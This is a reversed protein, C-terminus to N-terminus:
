HISLEGYQGYFSVVERPLIFKAYFISEGEKGEYIDYTGFLYRYKGFLTRKRNIWFDILTRNTIGPFLEYINNLSNEEYALPYYDDLVTANWIDFPLECMAILTRYEKRLIRMEWEGLVQEVYKAFVSSVTKGLTLHDTEKQDAVCIM